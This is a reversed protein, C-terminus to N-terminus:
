KTKVIGIFKYLYLFTETKNFKLALINKITKHKQTTKEGM